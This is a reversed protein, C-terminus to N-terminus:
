ASVPIHEFHLTFPLEGTDQGLHVGLEESGSEVRLMNHASTSDLPVQPITPDDTNNQIKGDDIINPKHPDSFAKRGSDSDFDTDTDNDVMADFAKFGTLANVVSASMVEIWSVSDFSPLSINGLIEEPMHEENQRQADKVLKRQKELGEPGLRIIQESIRDNEEQELKSSMKPSPHARVILM